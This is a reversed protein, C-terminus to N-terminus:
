VLDSTPLTLIHILSLAMASSAVHVILPNFEPRGKARYIRAVAEASDARAALGYVTETPIAVLHGARLLDAAQAIGATDPAIIQPEKGTM